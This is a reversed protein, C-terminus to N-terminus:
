LERPNADRHSEKRAEEAYLEKTARETTRKESPTRQRNRAIGYILVIALLATGVAWMAVPVHSGTDVPLGQADATGPLLTASGFFFASLRRRNSTIRSIISKV